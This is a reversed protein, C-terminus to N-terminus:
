AISGLSDFARGGALRGLAAEEAYRRLRFYQKKRPSKLAEVGWGNVGGYLSMM